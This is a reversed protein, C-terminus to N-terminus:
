KVVSFVTGAGSAGGMETTGYLLGFKGVILGSEPQIGDDGGTFSHLVTEKWAGGQKAPPALKFVVGCGDNYGANCSHNGGV